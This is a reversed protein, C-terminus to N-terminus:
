GLLEVVELRIGDPDRWECWRYNNRTFFEVSGTEYDTIGLNHLSAIAAELSDVRFSLHQQALFEPSADSQSLFFHLQPTEVVLTTPDNDRLKCVAGFM